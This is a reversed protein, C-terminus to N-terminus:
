PGMFRRLASVFVQPRESHVWHGAGKITVQMTRPFLRRMAAHHEPRVYPSREGALWLVPRDFRGVM